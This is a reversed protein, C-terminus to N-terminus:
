SSQATISCKDLLVHLITLHALALLCLLLNLLGHGFGALTAVLLKGLLKAEVRKLGLLQGLHAGVELLAPVVEKLRSTADGIRLLQRFFEVRDLFLFFLSQGAEKGSILKCFVVFTM